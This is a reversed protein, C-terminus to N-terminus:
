RTISDSSNRADSSAYNRGISGGTENSNRGISILAFTYTRDNKLVFTLTSKAGVTDTSVNFITPYFIHMALHRYDNPDNIHTENAIYPVFVIRCDTVFLTGDYPSYLSVEELSALIAEDIPPQRLSVTPRTHPGHQNLRHQWYLLHRYM